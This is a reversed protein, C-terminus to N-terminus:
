EDPETTDTVFFPSTLPNLIPLPYTFTQDSIELVVGYQVIVTFSGVGVPTDNDQVSSEIITPSVWLNVADIIGDTREDEYVQIDSSGETALTSSPSTVAMLLPFVLIFTTALLPFKEAYQLIVTFFGGIGGVETEMGSDMDIIWPNEFEIVGVRNGASASVVYVQFDSLGDTTEMFLEVPAIVPLLRPVAFIVTLVALPKLAVQLTETM